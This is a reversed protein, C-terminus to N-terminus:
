GIISEEYEIVRNECYLYCQGFTGRFVEDWEEYSELVVHIGNRFVIILENCGLWFNGETM